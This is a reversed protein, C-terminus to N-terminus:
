IKGSMEGDLGWETKSVTKNGLNRVRCRLFASKGVVATINSPISADFYPNNLDVIETTTLETTEYEYIIQGSSADSNINSKM